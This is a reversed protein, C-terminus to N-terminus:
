KGENTKPARDVKIATDAKMKMEIRSSRSLFMTDLFVTPVIVNVMAEMTRILPRHHYAREGM